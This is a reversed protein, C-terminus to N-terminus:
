VVQRDQDVICIHTSKLIIFQHSIDLGVYYEM